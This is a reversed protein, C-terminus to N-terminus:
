FMSWFRRDTVVIEDSVVHIIAGKLVAQIQRSIHLELGDIEFTAEPPYKCENFQLVWFHKKMATFSVPLAPWASALRNIPPVETDKELNIRKAQAKSEDPTQWPGEEM